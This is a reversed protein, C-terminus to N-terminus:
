FPSLDLASHLFLNRTHYSLNEVNWFGGSPSNFSRIRNEIGESQASSQNAARGHLIPGRKKGRSILQPLRGLRSWDPTNDVIVITARPKFIRRDRDAPFLRSRVTRRYFPQILTALSFEPSLQRSAGELVILTKVLM